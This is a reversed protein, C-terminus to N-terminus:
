EFFPSPESDLYWDAMGRATSLYKSAKVDKGEAHLQPVKMLLSEARKMPYGNHKAIDVRESAAVFKMAWVQEAKNDAHVSMSACSTMIAAIIGLTKKM